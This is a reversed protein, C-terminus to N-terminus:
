KKDVFGNEVGFRVLGKESKAQVKKMLNKKRTEVTKISVSTKDAIEKASYDEVLLKLLEAEVPTILKLIEKITNQPNSSLNPMLSIKAGVQAVENQLYEEGDRIKCLAEIVFQGSTNKLIYGNAGAQLMERIHSFDDYMTLVLVKIKSQTKTLHQMVELGNMKPMGIDLILIDVPTKKLSELTEIGDKAYGVFEFEDSANEIKSRIADIVLPYDEAIFIRTKQNNM